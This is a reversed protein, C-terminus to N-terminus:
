NNSPFLYNMGTEELYVNMMIKYIDENKNECVNFCENMLKNRMGAEEKTYTSDSNELNIYNNFDTDPHFVTGECILMAAYKEVDKITKIKTIM